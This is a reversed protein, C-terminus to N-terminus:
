RPFRARVSRACRFGLGKFVQDRTQGHVFRTDWFDNKDKVAPEPDGRLVSPPGGCVIYADTVYAARQNPDLRVGTVPVYRSSCWEAVNSFLGCVPPDTRTRDYEPFGVPGIPWSPFRPFDKANVCMISWALRLVGREGASGLTGTTSAALLPLSLDHDGWPFRQTGANTAAFEYEGHDPLRKGLLEACRVADDYSVFVVPHDDKGLEAHLETPLRGMAERYAAVTVETEDLYFPEVFQQNPPGLVPKLDVSGMTMQGGPFHTMHLPAAHKPIVIRPMDISKDSRETFLLHVFGKTTADEGPVEDPSPVKRYVEHFGYDEVEVIVLYDGPRVDEITLEEDANLPTKKSPMIAKDFQPTGDEASLPVLAVKAGGPETKVRVTRATTAPVAPEPHGLALIAALVAVLVLALGAVIQSSRRRALDGLRRGLGVPAKQPLAGKRVLQWDDYLDAASQYRRLRDPQLARLLVLDMNLPLRRRHSRAIQVPPTTATLRSKGYPLSLLLAQYLTAGVGFVDTRGDIDEDGEWQEPSMFGPTGMTKAPQTTTESQSFRALGFDALWGNGNKDVLINSPKLDRHLVGAGHLRVLADLVKDFFPLIKAQYDTDSLTAWPHPDLVEKGDRLARRQFITKALDSGEIYPLVLIPSAGTDLIDYVQLIGHETLQAALRAEQRFRRLREPDEAFTPPLCKLAVWRELHMQWARYVIGMGGKGIQGDIVFGDLLFPAPPSQGDDQAPLTADRDLATKLASLTVDGAFREPEIPPPASDAPASRRTEPASASGPAPTSLDGADSERRRGPLPRTQEQLLNRLWARLENESSGAFTRLLVPVERFAADALAEADRDPAHPLEEAALEALCQRCVALTKRFGEASGARAEQLCRELEPSAQKGPLPSM